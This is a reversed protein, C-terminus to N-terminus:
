DLRLTLRHFLIVAFPQSIILYIHVHTFMVSIRQNHATQENDVGMVFVHDTLRQQRLPTQTM